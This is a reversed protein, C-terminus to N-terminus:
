QGSGQAVHVTSDRDCTWLKETWFQCASHYLIKHLKWQEVVPTNSNGFLYVFPSTINQLGKKFLSWSASKQYEHFFFHCLCSQQSFRWLSTCFKYFTKILTLKYNKQYSHILSIIDCFCCTDHFEVKSLTLGLMEMELRREEDWWGVTTVLGTCMCKATKRSYWRMSDCIYKFLFTQFWHSMTM